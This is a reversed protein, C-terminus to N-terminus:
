QQSLWDSGVYRVRMGEYRTDDHWMGLRITVRQGKVRLVRAPVSSRQIVQMQPREDWVWALALDYQV